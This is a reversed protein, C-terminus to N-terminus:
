GDCIQGDRCSGINRQLCTHFLQSFNRYTSCEGRITPTVFASYPENPVQIIRICLTRTVKTQVFLSKLREASAIKLTRLARRHALHAINRKSIM